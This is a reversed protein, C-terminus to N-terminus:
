KEALTLVCDEPHREIYELVVRLAGQTGRVFDADGVITLGFRARSLAVNIRRWYDAGLFGLRGRTNSRTLSVIALDAERGQVSDVSLVDVRVHRFSCTALRRRLADVQSKYPAIVLVELPGDGDATILGFEVANDISQLHELVLRAEERNAYSVTGQERRADGLSRTDVWTVVRGTLRDYGELGRTRPSRLQGDYFCTSILDGIPRVMRYQDELMLQSHSPLRDTMRQFLTETVLDRSIEYEELLEGKRLLDEDSPPLQRTDGVLVWRRARSMPVLAETLTARSAEDVICLDFELQSVARNRLFGTCTGAVVATRSLFIPTLSSETSIRELWQAQVELRRLLARAHPAEGLLLDVAARADASTLNSPLTLDGALQAQAESLLEDRRDAIQELRIRMREAPDDDDEVATATESEHPRDLILSELQEEVYELDRSAVALQELTLAARLHRPTIGADTAQKAINGEARARVSEAWRTIQKDLLYEAAAPQVQSEDSALRVLNRIGAAHLREVANDVAVHTQSAILVRASPQRRLLQTVTEAIFTTKGTGPPGQVVLVDSAGLAAMVARRKVADLDASWEPPEMSDPASNRGPDVLLERLPSGPGTGEKIATIANRQRNLSIASPRDYPVLTASRPLGGLPKASLLTVTEGDQDIVEGHGFQRDAQRDVIAWDTGLLDTEPLSKVAFVTRRGTPRASTYTLPEADGRGLAERADLVRLWSEFLQDGDRELPEIEANKAAEFEDLLKMLLAHARSAQAPSAPQSTTWSFVPPLPLGHRRGGELREFEETSAAIVAIEDAGPNLKLTYRREDGILYITSRDVQATERDTGFHAFVEGSLDTQLAVNAHGHDALEGALQVRAARTLRLHIPNHPKAAQAVRQSQAKRFEDALEIANAPRQGPETDVCAGLLKRIDPPVSVSELATKLDSYDSIPERSLCRLIVTGIGFVDRVYPIRDELEPPAYVGSRHRQVTLESSPEGARLKSIGFDAVLPAGTEDILINAPKIDRHEVRKLHAHALAALLPRAVDEYFHDWGKWPPNDLFESLNRDVWDLVIFYTGTEDIGADRFGVINPHNLSRLSEVERDFLKRMLEDSYASVFKVAVRSGDRMDIGQRVTSLGGKRNGAALLGYHRGVQDIM